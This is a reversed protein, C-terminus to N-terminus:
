INGAHIQGRETYIDGGLTPGRLICTRGYTRGMHTYDWSHVHVHGRRAKHINDGAHTGGKDSIYTGKTHINASARLDAAQEARSSSLHPFSFSALRSRCSMLTCINPM